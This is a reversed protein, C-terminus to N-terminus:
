LCFGFNRLSMRTKCAWTLLRDAVTDAFGFYADSWTRKIALIFFPVLLGAAFGLAIVLYFWKDDVSGFDNEDTTGTNRSNDGPCEVELPAGCLSPNGSFSSAEFTTLHGVFPIRGSFNNDSLNLYGLFSLLSMSEPIPGSLMNRSLDFSALQRLESISHPIQGSIHNRSLNLVVLGVLNSIVIPFEGKLNNGSLDICTLLSLTKTYEFSQGKITVFINEQYYFGPLIAYPSNYNINQVHTMAEFNGFNAPIIGDLKNEALDLVQLSSLNALTSPLEGFFSNSRLRLIKLDKFGNGTWSPIVGTLRNNGLDITELFSLNRFSLPLKGSILNNRLHITRLFKLEGLSEPIVGSLNNCQLDLVQLLYCNGINTPINGSLNNKSLDLIVLGFLGEGISTPIEGILKNSALSLHNLFRTLNSISKPIPGSFKNNSLDLAKIRVNPIPLAGELLNYKLDISALPYINFPNPLSGQLQNFSFNLFVINSSISWFWNPISDSISANSFDLFGINRQSKLWAPFSPGLKCSGMFLYRVQFPPVWNSDLKLILSNASLSLTQLEKLMSFHSKSLIGSLHNSSVDLFSLESLQGLNTPLSGSLHNYSVDFFSLNSLQGLSYPLTENLANRSLSVTTLHKLGGISTPISGNFSNFDLILEVLNHLEGLWNPLEGVFENCRLNLYQLSSFSSKPLCFQTQGLVEPLSGTLYNYSLDLYKLNCLKGISRPIQGNINNFPLSLHTLSTLNGVFSPLEGYLSCFDLDFVEIKEWSGKLVQYINAKVSNGSLYLFRLNPLDSYGIPIGGNFFSNRADFFQLMSINPVWNPLTSNFDNDSLDIVAISSFNLFGHFSVSGHLNCFSLHVDSLHPLMNLALIWDSGVMSLDVGNLALYKLSSLSTMWELSDVTLCCSDSSVNFYQLTSINGLNQPIKGSFGASALNLYQLKELSHFFIPIPIGNFSNSSLDLHRLSKLKTLSPRIEGSLGGVEYKYPNHLDVTIVASTSNDCYIGWWQCCNNGQWSSLWNEPDKLGSKFDVLAERDSKLCDVMQAYSNHILGAMLALALLLM